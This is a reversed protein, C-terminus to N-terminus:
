KIVTIQWLYLYPIAETAKIAEPHNRSIETVIKSIYKAEEINKAVIKCASVRM